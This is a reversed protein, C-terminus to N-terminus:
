HGAEIQLWYRIKRLGETNLRNTEWGVFVWFIGTYKTTSWHIRLRGLRYTGEAM